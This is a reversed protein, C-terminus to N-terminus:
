DSKAAKGVKRRVVEDTYRFGKGKYPEPKKLGRIEAAVHGVLATDVGSITIVNGEVSANIGDPIKFEVEHSFGLKMVLKSGQLNMRFGVGNLELAKSWGETVGHIMNALLARMTGWMAADGKPDKVTVELLDGNEGTKKEVTACEHLVLELEGKPGKVKVTQGNIEVAVGSPVLISKKGIRSM